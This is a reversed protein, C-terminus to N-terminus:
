RPVFGESREAATSTPPNHPNPPEALPSKSDVPSSNTVIMSSSPIVPTQWQCSMLEAWRNLEPVHQFVLKMCVTIPIALVLGVLGWLFGWFLCAVLVTTGNIDFSRGMVVPTVVYGDIGIVALYISAVILADGFSEFQGLAILTPLAGGLLQGVYPVFNTLAAFLGLAFAFKVHMFSLAAAFVVGVALNILTRAVLYARIQQTM